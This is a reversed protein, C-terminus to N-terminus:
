LLLQRLPKLEHTQQWACPLLLKPRFNVKTATATATTTTTTVVAISPLAHWQLLAVIAPRHIRTPLLVSPLLPVCGFARAYVCVCVCVCVCVVCCLVVCCLVVCCLVVCCLVVCCCLVCCLVVCCLVVCCLVVCCVVCCCWLGWSLVIM